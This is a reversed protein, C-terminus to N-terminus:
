VHVHAVAGFTATPPAATMAVARVLSAGQDTMDATPGTNMDSDIDSHRREGLGRGCNPKGHHNM